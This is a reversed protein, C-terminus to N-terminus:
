ELATDAQGAGNYLEAIALFASPESLNHAIVAVQRDLDGSMRALTAM